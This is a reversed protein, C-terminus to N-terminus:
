DFELVLYCVEVDVGFRFKIEKLLYQIYYYYGRINEIGGVYYVEIKELERILLMSLM